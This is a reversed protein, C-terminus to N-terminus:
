KKRLKKLVITLGDVVEKFDYKECKNIFNALKAFNPKIKNKNILEGDNIILNEYNRGYLIKKICDSMAYIIPDDKPNAFYILQIILFENKTFNIIHENNQRERDFLFSKRCLKDLIKEKVFGYMTKNEACEDKNFKILLKVKNKNKKTHSLSIEKNMNFIERM